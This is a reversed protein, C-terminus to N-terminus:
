VDCTTSQPQLRTARPSTRNRCRKPRGRARRRERSYLRFLRQRTDLGGTWSAKVTWEDTGEACSDCGQRARTTQWRAFILLNFKKSSMSKPQDIECNLLKPDDDFYASIPGADNPIKTHWNTPVTGSIKPKTQGLKLGLDPEFVFIEPGIRLLTRPGKESLRASTFGAM